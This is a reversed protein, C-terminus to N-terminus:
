PRAPGHHHGRGHRRRGEDDQGHAVFKEVFGDYLKEHVLFRTPSVCVQGANRFKAGALTKVPTISTPTTSCSRRRM